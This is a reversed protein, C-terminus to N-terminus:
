KRALRNDRDNFKQEIDMMSLFLEVEDWSQSNLENITWGFKLCLQYKLFDFPVGKKTQLAVM